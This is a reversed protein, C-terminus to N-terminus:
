IVIETTETAATPPQPNRAAVTARLAAPDGRLLVTQAGLVPDLEALAAFWSSAEDLSACDLLVARDGCALVKM